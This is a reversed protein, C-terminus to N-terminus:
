RRRTTQKVLQHGLVSAGAVLVGQVVAEMSLGLKFTTGGISVVMLIWPILWDPIKPMGKLFMGIIWIAPILTISEQSLYNMLEM